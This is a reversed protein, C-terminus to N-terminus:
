NDLHYQAYYKFQSEPHNAIFENLRKNGVGPGLYDKAALASYFASTTNKNTLNDGYEFTLKKFPKLDMKSLIAYFNLYNENTQMAPNEIIEELNNLEKFQAIWYLNKLVSAKLFAHDPYDKLMQLALFLSPGYDSHQYYAQIQEFKASLRLKQYDAQKKVLYKKSAKKSQDLANIIEKLATVRKNIGPHTTFQDGFKSKQLMVEEEEEKMENILATDKELNNSDVPLWKAIDLPQYHYKVTDKLRKLANIAAEQKYPTSSFYQMGMEDAKSEYDRSYKMKRFGEDSSGTHIEKAKAEHAKRYIEFVHSKKIHVLEHCIISALQAENQMLSYLGINIFITGDSLAKANPTPAKTVFIQYDSAKLNPNAKIIQSLVSQAHQSFKNNFYVNGKVFPPRKQKLVFKKFRKITKKDLGSTPLDLNIKKLKLNALVAEPVEGKNEIPSYTKQIQGISGFSLFIAVAFSVALRM